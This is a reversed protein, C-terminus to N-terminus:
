SAPERLAVRGAPDNKDTSAKTDRNEDAALAPAPREPVAAKEGDMGIVWRRDSTPRRPMDTDARAAKGTLSAAKPDQGAVDGLKLVRGRSDLVPRTAAVVVSGSAQAIEPDEAANSVALMGNSTRGLVDPEHGAYALNFAGPQGYAGDIRYFVHRGVTLTKVLSAAWYPVVYDAHYHTSLGAPAYVAGALARAAVKRLREWIAPSPKRALSGDCTFSFQCGTKRESGQFVVGCVTRPYLPHRLRNLVVQAVARQGDESEHGAEYYLASTMCDLSRASDITDGALIMLSRASPNPLTSVPRAANTEVATEPSVAVLAEPDAVSLETPDFPPAEFYIRVLPEEGIPRRDPSTAAIRSALFMIALGGILLSVVLVLLHLRSLAGHTSSPVSTTTDDITAPQGTTM